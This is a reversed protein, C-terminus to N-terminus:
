PPGERRPLTMEFEAWTTDSLRWKGGSPAALEDALMALQFEPCLHLPSEEQSRSRVQGIALHWGAVGVAADTLALAVAQCIPAPSCSDPAPLWETEHGSWIVWLGPLRGDAMMAAAILLADAGSAPGGGIGFNPGYIKLAQSITGSLGHFSHHPILHPSVGWAGEQRYREISAANSVRGFFCPAAVVGWDAFSREQWGEKAMAALVAKLAAITQDEAHKLFSPPMAQAGVVLPQKRWQGITEAGARVSASAAVRCRVTTELAPFCLSSKM